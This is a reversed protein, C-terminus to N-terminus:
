CFQQQRLAVAAVAQADVEIGLGPATPVNITGDPNLAFTPSAIDHTYYRDSASIDGPLTFGPLSALALNAARGIGTELMGGCWVPRGQAVALDHIAIAVSYGGVRAPKINIIDAAGIEFAWRAHALSTISEDLCLPTNLQAALKAHDLLDDEALPQEILLLDFDDLQRLHDADALRYASNADVQLMLDPFAGRVAAVDGADRGPKIKLKVRPYGRDVYRAVQAVLTEPDRQLGVSVGVAVTHRTGGLFERLSIGAAQALMDSLALEFGAKAMNHGKIPSLAQLLADATAFRQHLVRPVIFDTSIHWATGATEYSYGPELGAPCEGWGTLGGGELRVLLAHRDAEVGFSTEFPAVLPMSVHFLTITEITISVM